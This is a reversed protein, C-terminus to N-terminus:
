DSVIPLEIVFCAGKGLESAVYFDGGHEKIIEFSLSLGLGTGKGIEKTTFLPEFIKQLNEQAIGPGTDLISIRIVRDDFESKVTLWGAGSQEKMAQHANNIVNLLVQQLEHFDAMTGPMHGALHRVVQIRDRKLDHQKLDLTSEIISNVHVNEKKKEYKRSFALFKDVINKTLQAGKNIKELYELTEEPSWEKMLLLETLGLIAGLPNNIEHAFGAILQGLAAFRESQVLQAKVYSLEEQAKESAVSKSRRAIGKRVVERYVEKEFPKDIYDYAGLKLAEKASELDSHATVILVETNPSWEKIAKLTEIGSMGPMELDLSVVDFDAGQSILGFAKDGNEVSTVDCESGLMFCMASRITHSDDVILVSPRAEHNNKKQQEMLM